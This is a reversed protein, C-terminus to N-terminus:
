KIINIYCFEDDEDVYKNHQTKIVIGTYGTGDFHTVSHYYTNTHVNFEFIEFKIHHNKFEEIFKIFGSYGNIKEGFKHNNIPYDEINM